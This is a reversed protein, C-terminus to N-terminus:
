FESRSFLGKDTSPTPGADLGEESHGWSLARPEGSPCTAGPAPSPPSAITARLLRVRLGSERQGRRIDTLADDVIV